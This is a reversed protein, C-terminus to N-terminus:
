FVEHSQPRIFGWFPNSKSVAPVSVLPCIQVFASQIGFMGLLEGYGSADAM